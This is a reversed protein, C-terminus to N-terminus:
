ENYKGKYKNILSWSKNIYQEPHESMLIIQMEGNDAKKYDSERLKAAETLYGKASIILFRPM